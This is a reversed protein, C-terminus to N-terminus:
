TEPFGDLTQVYYLDWFLAKTPFCTHNVWWSRFTQDSSPSGIVILNRSVNQLDVYVEAKFFVDVYLNRKIRAAQRVLDTSNDRDLFIPPEKPLDFKKLITVLPDLGLEDQSESNFKSICKNLLLLQLYDFRFFNRSFFNTPCIQSLKKFAFYCVLTMIRSLAIFHGLSFLLLIMGYEDDYNPRERRTRTPFKKRQTQEYYNVSGVQILAVTTCNKLKCCPEPFNREMFTQWIADCYIVSNERRVNTSTNSGPTSWTLTPSSTPSPGNEVRTGWFFRCFNFGFRVM